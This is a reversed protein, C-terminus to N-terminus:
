GGTPNLSERGHDGRPTGVLWRLVEELPDPVPLDPEMAILRARTPKARGHKACLEEYGRDGVARRVHDEYNKTLRWVRVTGDQQALADLTANFNAEDDSQDRFDSSDQDYVIGIPIEFSRAIEAFSLLNRKGGVKVVTAGARDLDLDLRRAYAPVALKETDGEVLLVRRAFFLENREPDLEKILKERRKADAPLDSRRVTTGNSGRRVLLIEEYEPVSVFHPSHTAYIVQNTKGIERLTKYLARQAQPHLFMEPEEILLIAGQKRREEFARLIALVLANQVGDGLKTASITFDRERVMLDLTKYFDLTGFPTFSFDLRDSETEPDFGLYRLANRKISKELREFEATRLVQFTLDMLERFRDGRTMEVVRDRRLVEIIQSPDHLDRDIDEMLPRLLGYRASPLHERLSRGTGLYILPIATRIESPVGILPQYQRPEGSKPRRTLVQVKQGKADLCQQELRREGKREGIRYRTYEFSLAAVESPHGALKEYQIPPDLRLVIEMDAAPDRGYVDEDAFQSVAIWERELVGRIALLINSKGANNPGVLACVNSMEIDLHRISRFNKISIRSIRTVAASPDLTL